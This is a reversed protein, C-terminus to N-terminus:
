GGVSFRKPEKMGAGSLVIKGSSRVTKFHFRFLEISNWFTEDLAAWTRPIIM